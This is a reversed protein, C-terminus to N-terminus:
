IYTKLSFFSFQEDISQFDFDIPKASKRALEIFGLGAGKTIPEKKRQEKYFSKLEIKDMNHLVTLKNTLKEIDKKNIKNGCVVYYYDNKYGVVVIGNSLSGGNLDKDSFREASYHIINQVQEIFMAFVRTMKAPNLSEIKMRNKLTDGIEVLLEQSFSGYFSLLIGQKDCEEKFSYLNNSM